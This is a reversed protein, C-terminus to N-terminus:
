GAAGARKRVEVQAKMLTDPTIIWFNHFYSGTKKADVWFGRSLVTSKIQQDRTSYSAGCYILEEPRSFLARPNDICEGKFKLNPILNNLNDEKSIWELVERPTAEIRISSANGKLFTEYLEGRLGKGTVEEVDLGPDFRHGTLTLVLDARLAAAEVLKYTDVIAEVAQPPSAWFELNSSVGM